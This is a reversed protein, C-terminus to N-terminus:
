FDDADEQALCFCLECLKTKVDLYTVPEKKDHNDQKKCKVCCRPYVWGDFEHKIPAKKM